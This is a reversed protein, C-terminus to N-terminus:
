EKEGGKEDTGGDMGGDVSEPEPRHPAAVIGGRAGADVDSHAMLPTAGPLLAEVAIAIATATALGFGLLAVRMRTFFGAPQAQKERMQAKAWALLEEASPEDPVLAQQLQPLFRTVTELTAQCEACGRIHEELEAREADTLAGQKYLMIDELRHEKAVDSM